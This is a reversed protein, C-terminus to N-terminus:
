FRSGGEAPKEYKLGLKEAIKAAADTSEALQSGIASYLARLVENFISDRNTMTDRELKEHITEADLNLLDYITDIDLSGKQYLDFMSSFMEQNDRLALRTFSLRPHLIVTKGDEDEEVFGMRACMPAFINTDIFDQLVERLLLYRTNIVELNIRDGSYSSEGSLLSETVGLGAYLQRDTLEYEGSLELLRNDTGAGREEWNVQFNTIISFDPDQLAMDVQMRLEEIDNVSMNEAWILRYPTMHRSTIQAQAQRLKDRYVLTRIVSQLASKGRPEYQSKKRAMYHCFSGAYPNTNLPINEGRQVYDVIEAPMSELISYAREDGALARDIISKTKSDPVLSILMKNTFPFSELIMQEPPLVRLDTWGEYNKKLWAALREVHDEWLVEKSVLEGDDGLEYVVKHTVERPPDPNADEAFVFVEGFLEFDHVIEVLRHLLGVKKAWRECFRTAAAALEKNKAIPKRLRVKTLPLESHLNMAQHVFPDNDYFFRYYNRQEDLTQPLQLFDTSLEPSYFPGGGALSTQGIAPYAVKARSHTVTSVKARSRSNPNGKVEAVKVGFREKTDAVKLSFKGNKARSM